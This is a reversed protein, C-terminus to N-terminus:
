GCHLLCLIRPNSGQTPFIGQLLAHCDVGTNKGPSGWACLLGLPYLEHPWVSDYVVPIVSCMISVNPNIQQKNNIWDEIPAIRSFHGELYVKYYIPQWVKEKFKKKKEKIIKPWITAHPIKTGLDLIFGLGGATSVQSDSGSFWLSHGHAPMTESPIRDM